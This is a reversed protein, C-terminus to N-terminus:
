DAALLWRWGSSWHRRPRGRRGLRHGRLNWRHEGADVAFRDVFPFEVVGDAPDFRHGARRHRRVPAVFDQAAREVLQDGVV